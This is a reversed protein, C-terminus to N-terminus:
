DVFVINSEIAFTFDGESGVSICIENYDELEEKEDEDAPRGVIQEFEEFLANTVEERSFKTLIGSVGNNNVLIYHYLTKSEIKTKESM